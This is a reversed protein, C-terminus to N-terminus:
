LIIRWAGVVVLVCLTVVTATIALLMVQGAIRDLRRRRQYTSPKM